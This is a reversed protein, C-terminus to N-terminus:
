TLGETDPLYGFPCCSEDVSISTLNSLLGSENPDTGSIAPAEGVLFSLEFPITALATCSPLMKDEPLEEIELM